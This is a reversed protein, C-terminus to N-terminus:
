KKIVVAIAASIDIKCLRGLEEKTEIEIVPVNNKKALNLPQRLVFADANKAVFMKEVDNAKLAKLSQKLGIKYRNKENFVKTDFM